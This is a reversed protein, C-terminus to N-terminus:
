GSGNRMYDEQKQARELRREYFDSLPTEQKEEPIFNPPPEPVGDKNKKPNPVNVEIPFSTGEPNTGGHVWKKPM